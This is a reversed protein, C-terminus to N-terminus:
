RAMSTSTPTGPWRRRWCRRTCAPNATPSCRSHLLGGVLHATILTADIDIVIWGTLLKGAIRLWAFGGPRLALLNWVHGRVAARAKGLRTLVSDTIEDLTRGATCDSPPDGFITAQHALLDIDSMCVAGLVISIALDVPVLGRDWWGPGRGAPFVESLAATLGSRDACRRLLVAGAHGILGKGRASVVLNRDWGSRKGVLFTCGIRSHIREEVTSDKRAPHV